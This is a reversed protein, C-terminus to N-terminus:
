RQGVELPLLGGTCGVWEGLSAITGGTTYAALTVYAACAMAPAAVWTWKLIRNRDDPENFLLSRQFTIVYLPLALAVGFGYWLYGAEAYRADMLPAVMACVLCAVPPLLWAPNLHEASHPDTVWRAALYLALALTPPAGMWFLVRALTDAGDFRGFTAFALLVLAAAPIVFANSRLPCMWEKAVKRPHKM